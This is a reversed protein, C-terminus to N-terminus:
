LCRRPPDLQSTSHLLQVEQEAGINKLAAVTQSTYQGRADALFGIMGEIELSKDILNM